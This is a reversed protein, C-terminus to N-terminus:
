SVQIADNCHYFRWGRGDGYDRAIIACIPHGYTAPGGSEVSFAIAYDPESWCGASVKYGRRAVEAKCKELIQQHTM